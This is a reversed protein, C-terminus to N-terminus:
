AVMNEELEEHQIHSAKRREQQIMQTLIRNIDNAITNPVSAKLIKQLDENLNTPTKFNIAEQVVLLPTNRRRHARAVGIDTIFAQSLQFLSQFPLASENTRRGSTENLIISMKFRPVQYRSNNDLSEAYQLQFDADQMYLSATAFNKHHASKMITDMDGGGWKAFLYGTKRFTHTTISQDRDLIRRFRSKLLDLMGNYQHKDTKKKLNPFLFGNKIEALHVYCLLHRVPCFEPVYDKRWLILTKWVQDTKGCVRLALAELQGEKIICLDRQIHDLQISSFEDHRLFLHISVLMICYLQLDEIRNTSLLMNRIELLEVPLLQYSGRVEYDFLEQTNERYANKVIDSNRPNGTRWVRIDGPHFRCGNSDQSKSWEETCFMCPTKYPGNQARAAHVSTVASLFQNSNGPDKWAGDCLIPDGFINLVVTNSLFDKLKDGKQWSKYRFYLAITEPKMSPCFEDPARDHIVLLSEYDGLIACFASFGRFHKDYSKTTNEKISSTGTQKKIDHSLQLNLTALYKNIGEEYKLQYKDPIGYKLKRGRNFTSM